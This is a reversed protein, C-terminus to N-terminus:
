KDETNFYYMLSLFIGMPLTCILVLFRNEPSWYFINFTVKYFSCSIYLITFWAFFVLISKILKM